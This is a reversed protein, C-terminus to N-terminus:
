SQGVSQICYDAIAALVHDDEGAASVVTVPIDTAACTAEILPPLDRRLHGGTGLFLPVVVIREADREALATCAARLDPSMFELFALEVPGPHRQAIMTRLRDFPERWRADKAGHCFLVLGTTM